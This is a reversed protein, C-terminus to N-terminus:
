KQKIFDFLIVLCTKPPNEGSKSLLEDAASGRTEQLGWCPDTCREHINESADGSIFRIFLTQCFWTMTKAIPERAM